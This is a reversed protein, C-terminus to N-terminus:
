PGGPRSVVDIQRIMEEPSSESMAEAWRGTKDDGVLLVPLHSAGGLSEGIFDRVLKRFVGEGGTVLTWGRGVKYKAAWEKLRRPTDTVPDKSISVIFVDRGAREGLRAQLKALAMGQMPCVDLCSTFFFSLVVAKGKMLDSYLRLHNGDQDVVPIDPIEVQAKGVTVAGPRPVPTRRAGVPMAPPPPSGHTHRRSTVAPGAGGTDERQPTQGYSGQALSFALLTLLGLRHPTYAFFPLPRRRRSDQETM